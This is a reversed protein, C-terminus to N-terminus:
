DRLWPIRLAMGILFGGVSLMIFTEEHDIELAKAVGGLILSLGAAFAVQRWGGIRDLLAHTNAASKRMAEHGAGTHGYDLTRPPPIPIPDLNIGIREGM